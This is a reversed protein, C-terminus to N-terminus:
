VRVVSVGEGGECVKSQLSGVEQQLQKAEERTSKLDLTTMSVQSEAREARERASKHAAAERELKSLLDAVNIGDGSLIEVGNM